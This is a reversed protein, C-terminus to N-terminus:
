KEKVIERAKDYIDGAGVFLVNDFGEIVSLVKENLKEGNEYEIFGKYSERLEFYLKEASGEEMYKERAPYTKYIILGDAKSLVRVFDKMLFKTRSYTHPQFVVLSKLGKEKYTSLLAEIETPHHAYDAILDKNKIRGILENRREVGDFEELAKKIIKPEIKFLDAVAFASLANYINHKGSIKLNIRIVRKGYKYVTFSYGNGNFNVRKVFYTAKNKVGFTVTKSNFVEFCNKDDANIVSISNKAFANFSAIEDEIGNFSDLHDNDINLIVSMFPSLDFFNKKYECAELIVVDKGGKRFNGYESVKGGLFVTPNKDAKIFIKSIMATTTTKGHSGSVAISVLHRKVIENLLESRKIIPLGLEKARKLEVNNESIASTYVVLDKGDINRKLHRYTIYVGAKKLQATLDSKSKDSGSVCKGLLVCYKALSSMSIGGIGIFHIKSYFDLNFNKTM